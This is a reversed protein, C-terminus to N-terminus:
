NRMNQIMGMIPDQYQYIGLAIAVLGLLLLMVVVVMKNPDDLMERFNFQGPTRGRNRGQLDPFSKPLQPGKPEEPMDTFAKRQM